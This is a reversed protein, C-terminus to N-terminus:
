LNVGTRDVWNASHEETRAKEIEPVVPEDFISNLLGGVVEPTLQRDEM